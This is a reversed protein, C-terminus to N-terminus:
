CRSARWACARPRRDARRLRRRWRRRVPLRALSARGTCRLLRISRCCGVHEGRRRVEGVRARLQLPEQLLLLVKSRLRAQESAPQQTSAPQIALAGTCRHTSSCRRNAASM